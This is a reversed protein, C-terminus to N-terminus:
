SFDRQIKSIEEAVGKPIVFLSLYYMSLNNLTSKILTLRGGQSLLKGKWSTLKKEMKEIVPKWVEKKRMKIGVLLGLYTFPFSGVKCYLTEAM